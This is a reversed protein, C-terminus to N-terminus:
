EFVFDLEIMGVPDDGTEEEPVDTPETSDLEVDGGNGVLEADLEPPTALLEGIETTEDPVNGYEIGSDV